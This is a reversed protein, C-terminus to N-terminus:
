HANGHSACLKQTAEWTLLNGSKEAAFQSATEQDSFATLFMGMPSPMQESQLFIAKSVEIFQGPNKYDTALLTKASAGAENEDLYQAMCEISDFKYVKGKQTVLESGYRNDSITMKCHHCNDSGYAIPEPGSQCAILLLISTLGVYIKLPTIM